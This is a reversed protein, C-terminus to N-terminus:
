LVHVLSEHFAFLSVLPSHLIDSHNASLSRSIDTHVRRTYMTLRRAFDVKQLSTNRAHCLWIRVHLTSYGGRQLFSCLNDPGLGYANHGKSRFPEMDSKGAQHQARRERRSKQQCRANSLILSAMRGEHPVRDRLFSKVDELTKASSLTLWCERILRIKSTAVKHYRWERAPVGM